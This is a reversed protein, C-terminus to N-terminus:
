RAGLLYSRIPCTTNALLIPPDINTLDIFRQASLTRNSSMKLVYTDVFGDYRSIDKLMRNVWSM